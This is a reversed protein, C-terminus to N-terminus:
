ESRLNNVPKVLGAKIAQYSITGVAIMLAMAGALLYVDVGVPTKSDFGLLWQEMGYNAIPAAIVISILVLKVFNVTLL